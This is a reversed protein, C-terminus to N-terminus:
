VLRQGIAQEQRVMLLCILVHLLNRVSRHVAQGAPRGYFTCCMSQSCACFAALAASIDTSNRKDRRSKNAAM